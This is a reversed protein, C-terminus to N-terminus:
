IHILSLDLAVQKGLERSTQRVLRYLRDSVADFALLRSRILSQTLAKNAKTQNILDQEADQLTKAVTDRVTLMDGLSESLMRTLEQFRTFRDFELPDFATQTANALETRTAMQSEAQIEIERLQQRLREVNDTLERLSQRLQLVHQDLRGKSGAVETAQNVWLDLTDTRMRLAPLTMDHTSAAPKTIAISAASTVSTASPTPAIDINPSVTAATIPPPVQVKPSSTQLTSPVAVSLAPISSATVSLADDFLASTQAMETAFKQSAATMVVSTAASQAPMKLKSYTQVIADFANLLQTHTDTDLWQPLHEAGRLKSQVANELSSEFGHLMAGMRMAGAMRSSGKLTHLDRRLSDLVSPTNALLNLDNQVRPLLLEAEEEFDFWIDDDIEDVSTNTDDTDTDANSDTALNIGVKTNENTNEKEVANLQVTHIPAIVALAKPVASAQVLAPNPQTINETLKVPEVVSDISEVSEVSEISEIPKPSHQKPLRLLAESHKPRDRICM